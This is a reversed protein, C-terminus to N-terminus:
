YPQNPCHYIQLQQAADRTWNNVMVPLPYNAYNTSDDAWVLWSVNRLITKCESHIEVISSGIILGSIKNYM